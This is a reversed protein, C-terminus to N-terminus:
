SDDTFYGMVDVILHVTGNANYFLVSGPPDGLKEVDSVRSIAMNPVTEGAVFNLNSAVPLTLLDRATAVVYGFSSPQTVTLNMVMAEVDPNPGANELMWLIRAGNSGIPGGDERTDLFRQPPLPVFRGAPSSRDLDYWGTVDAILHTSGGNNYLRVLGNAPVRVTVLSAVTQGPVVNLNSALPRDVDGPHVTVFSVATPETATVNLAVAVMGTQPLGVKGRLDLTISGGPGVKGAPAGQAFRTDLVRRPADITHFRGGAPGTGSSYFGVIDVILHTSGQNNYLSIMGSPSVPVTVSNARTEGPTLNLNSAEPRTAGQPWATVFTHRTPQTGTLTVVVASVGSDPVGAVGTVDLHITAGPRVPAVNGNRGTGDRTDLVRSPTVATFEGDPGSPAVVNGTLAIDRGESGQPLLDDVFTIRGSRSGLPGVPTLSVTVVCAEGVALVDGDCAVEDLAFAGGGDDALVVDGVDLPAPGTNQVEVQRVVAQSGVTRSGFQVPDPDVQRTAYPEDSRFSITGSLASDSGDCHQEFRVALRRVETEFWELEDITFRGAVTDCVRGNVYVELGPAEGPPGSTDIADEYTGEALDEGAPARITLAMWDSGQFVVSTLVSPQGQPRDTWSLLRSEGQGLPDGHESDFYAWTVPQPLGISGGVLEIDRGGSGIPALDDFWTFRATRGGGESTPGFTIGVVCTSNVALAVGQCNDTVIDFDQPDRGTLTTAGINLVAPGHNTIGVLRPATTATAPILGFDIREPAVSRTHLQRESNFLVEGFLAPKTPVDCHQEFRAALSTIAGSGNRTIEDIQFRGYVHVCISGDGSVDLGPKGAPRTAALRADEYAGVELTEGIPAALRVTANSGSGALDFRAVESGQWGTFTVSTFTKTTGFPSANPEGDFFAMSTPAAAVPPAGLLMGAGMLQVLVLVVAGLRIVHRGVRREGM